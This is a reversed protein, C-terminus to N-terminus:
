TALAIGDDLIEINVQNSEGNSTVLFWNDDLLTEDFLSADFLISVNLACALRQAISKGDFITNLDFPWMISIGQKFGQSYTMPLLFLKCDSCPFNASEIKLGIISELKTIIEQESREDELYLDILKSSSM